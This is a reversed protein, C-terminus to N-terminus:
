RLPVESYEVCRPDVSSTLVHTHDFYDDREGDDDVTVLHVDVYWHWEAMSVEEPPAPRCEGWTAQFEEHEACGEPEGLLVHGETWLSGQPPWSIVVSTEEDGFDAELAERVRQEDEDSWYFRPEYAFDEPCGGFMWEGGKPTWVEVGGNERWPEVLKPGPWSDLESYSSTHSFEHPDPKAFTSPRKLHLASGTRKASGLIWDIRFETDYSREHRSRETM